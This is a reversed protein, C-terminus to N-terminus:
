EVRGRQDRGSLPMRAISSTALLRSETFSIAARVPTRCVDCRDVGGAAGFLQIEWEDCYNCDHLVHPVNGVPLPLPPSAPPVLMAGSLESPGEPGSSVREELRAELRTRNSASPKSSAAAGSSLRLPSEAWAAGSCGDSFCFSAM